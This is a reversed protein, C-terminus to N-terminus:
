TLQYEATSLLLHLAAKMESATLDSHTLPSTLGKEAGLAEAILARQDHSIPLALFRNVLADVCQKANKFALDDFVQKANWYEYNKSKDVLRNIYRVREQQTEFGRMRNRIKAQQQRPLTQMYAEMEKRLDQRMAEPAMMGPMAEMGKKMQMMEKQGNASALTASLNYRTLLTNANIWARGGDWGKVNPPYFLDQGLQASARAMSAYPPYPMDLDHVLRAVFQVPSKIQTGVAKEAYFAESLFLKKLMPALNYGHSRLNNAMAQILATDPIDRVFYFYLKKSLFEAAAPQEFIIDIIDRGDFNGTRGLFTKSGEDHVRYRNVFGNPGVTWGTFARASAKIDDETYNGIGLTFLEMLERAWNENPHQKVNQNNDLYRLMAPSKAVAITLKKFNGVANARFESNLLYNATSSKIKQASTAFHGHWFLVM